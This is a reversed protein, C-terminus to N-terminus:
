TVSSCRMPRCFGLSTSGPQRPRASVQPFGGPHSPVPRSLWCYIALERLPKLLMDDTKLTRLFSIPRRSAQEGRVVCRLSREGSEARRKAINSNRDLIEEDFLVPQHGPNLKCSDMASIPEPKRGRMKRDPMDFPQPNCRGVSGHLAHGGAFDIRLVHHVLEAGSTSPRPEPSRSRHLKATVAAQLLRGIRAGTGEGFLRVLGRPRRDNEPPM